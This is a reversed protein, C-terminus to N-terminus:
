GAVGALADARARAAALAAAMERALTRVHPESGLTVHAGPVERVEVAAASRCWGMTRREEDTYPALFGAMLDHVEGARFLTLTGPFPAPAYGARSRVRARLTLFGERLADADFDDPAAGQAHLAEVVIRVQEEADLGELAARDLVFPRRSLAAVDDAAGTIIDVDSSWPWAHVLEPVLTDLLGLFAVTEGARELQMAMEYAVFGGFSWGLLFYPGRPQVERLAAVHESAIRTVPRSLDDGLDRLGYVPQGAGLHRVLNVYGMVDRDAPHVCFLPPLSGHPQLPVVPSRPGAPARSQAEVARAMQRVTAGAFLTAVPLDCKMRRNVLAFLRLALLSNGGLEFFSQSPGIGKVGLLEEWVQILQAEVFTRPEDFGNEERGYEPAPLARRDLKGTPTQPLARMVVFAAPVMYEPLTGRMWERLEAPDAADAVVYAVLRRDGPRDERVTVMCERVEPRRRLVAEIEGLEVRYGRIKVQNDTRGLIMLNGDALWRARDGTRYMRAGADAFPDPVFKEASLGPRGLYGRAVGAGGIYLEGPLGVPVPEGQVDLVYFTLNQIPRGVPVAGRRHRGTPLLYASCGVVTETPGYENMLRVGPAHDQWPVTPEASLFDAGIVLTHAAGALDEPALMTNLLGVHIPTIKILGFGPRARIIDALAEVPSAEPLLRVPRGAFLPLLNTVTLDVAMSSFVPAGNGGDAGYARIGWHIYNSVGRHHMAVGKPRGTSGSTYIVYALNESTVGSEVPGDGNAGIRGAAADVAVVAIGDRPPIRARLRDQTLLVGVGSDDLLYAIREAPHAPDMPVYAGGAKMVGLICVMLEPSRELCIGVRVEPGVGMGRLHRALRNARADLEAYTLSEAGFELAVADPTRRAQEEFLQHICRDAPYRATTRNWGLLRDREARSVLNLRSVRRDPDAAVQDLLRELHEVMRLATGREFLDASYHLAGTIGRSHANLLLAVDLKASDADRSLESVQLAAERAPVEVLAANDLQFLVQFLTSHSLTREPALEAIVREFPVDQHEYADLVTERVRRVLARFPPDGSVDTRLVLTNMFLGILGEVESRTRGAIPTGVVVDDGVGYRTLLLKFASLVVMYVTAGEARALERLRELVDAPVSVPVHGGRFSPVSPRPHNAPLEMLEPAGALQRTWYALQRSEAERRDPSRQWVAWQAYQLPLEALPSPHGARFADYLAWTERFLVGLSWGDAIIHHVCLLLAHDREDLRVLRALFLPGVTLDFHHCAVEDMRLRLERERAAPDLAGLDEAPLAFGTFPAVRQSAVGDTERFTTRLSAHRRVVEGLARELAATDLAGRLRRGTYINYSAGGQGVRDLFWFREQDYTLPADDGAEVRLMPSAARLGRLRAELLARKAESLEAAPPAIDQITVKL